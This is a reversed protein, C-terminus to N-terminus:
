AREAPLPALSPAALEPAPPGSVEGQRPFVTRHQTRAIGLARLIARKTELRCEHGAEVSWITRLSVSARRALEERTMLQEERIERVRNAGAREVGLTKWM